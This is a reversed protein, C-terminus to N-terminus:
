SNQAKFEVEVKAGELDYPSWPEVRFAGGTILMEILEKEQAMCLPFYDCQVFRYSCAEPANQYFADFGVRLFNKIQNVRFEFQHLAQDLQSDSKTVVIRQFLKLDKEGKPDKKYDKVMIINILARKPTRGLLERLAAMYLTIQNNVMFQTKYSNNVIGATKNELLDGEDIVGDMKGILVGNHLHLAFGVELMPKGDKGLMISFTERDLPYYDMYKIMLDLGFEVSHEEKMEKEKAEAKTTVLGSNQAKATEGFAALVDVTTKKSYYAQLGSHFASGFSLAPSFQQPVLNLIKRYLFKRPCIGFVNLISNDLTLQDLQAESYILDDIKVTMFKKRNEIKL